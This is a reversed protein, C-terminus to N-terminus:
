VGDGPPQHDRAPRPFKTGDGQDAEAAAGAVPGAAVTGTAEPDVSSPAPVSEAWSSHLHYVCHLFILIELKCNTLCGISALGNYMYM